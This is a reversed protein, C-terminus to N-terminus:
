PKVTRTPSPQRGYSVVVPPGSVLIRLQTAPARPQRFRGNSKGLLHFGFPSQATKTTQEPGGNPVPTLVNGGFWTM